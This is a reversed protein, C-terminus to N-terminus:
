LYAVHHAMEADSRVTLSGHHFFRAAHVMRCRGGGLVVRGYYDNDEFYAPRYNADFWGFRDLAASTLMVCSFDAGDTIAEPDIVGRGNTSIGSWLEAERREGFAVLRDLCDAELLVDNAVLAIYSSGAAIAHRCGENWAGGVSREVFPQYIVEVAGSFRSALAAQLAEPGCYSLRNCVVYLTMVQASRLHAAADLTASFLAENQLVVPMIIGVKM